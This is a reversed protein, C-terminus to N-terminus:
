THELFKRKSALGSAQKGSAKLRTECRRQRLKIFFEIQWPFKMKRNASEMLLDSQRPDSM